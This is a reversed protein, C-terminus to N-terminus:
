HGSRSIFSYIILKSFNGHLKSGENMKFKSPLLFSKPFTKKEEGGGEGGGGGLKTLFNHPGLSILTKM